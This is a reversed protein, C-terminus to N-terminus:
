PLKRKQDSIIGGFTLGSHSFLIDDKINAPMVAILSNGKFFMISFDTFRDSHYEMYDRCFLFTGNKSNTIFEDWLSKYKNEYKIIKIKEM